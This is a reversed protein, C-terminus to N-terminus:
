KIAIILNNFSKIDISFKFLVIPTIIIEKIFIYRKCIHNNNNVAIDFLINLIYYM